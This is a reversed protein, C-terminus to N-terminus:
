RNRAAWGRKKEIMKDLPESKEQDRCHGGGGMDESRRRRVGDNRGFIIIGFLM